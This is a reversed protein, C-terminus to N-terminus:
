GMGPFISVSALKTIILLLITGYHLNQGKLPFYFIKIYNKCKIIYYADTGGGRIHVYVHVHVPVTLKHEFWLPFFILFYDDM